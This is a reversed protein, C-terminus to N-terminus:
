PYDKSISRPKWDFGRKEAVRPVGMYREFSAASHPGGYVTGAGTAVADSPSQFGLKLKPVLNGINGLARTGREVGELGLGFDSNRFRRGPGEEDIARRQSETYDFHAGSQKLRWNMDQLRQQFTAIEYENDWFAATTRQAETLTEQQTKAINAKIAALNADAIEQEHMAMMRGASAIGSGFGGTGPQQASAGGPSSAGGHTASLIPNLGAARLDAVERQHATNSMYEQFRMQKDASRRNMWGEFLSGGLSLVGGAVASAPGLWSAGGGGTSPAAAAVEAGEWTPNGIVLPNDENIAPM